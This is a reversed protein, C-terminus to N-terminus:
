DFTCFPHAHVSISAPLRFPHLLWELKWSVAELCSGPLSAIHSVEAERGNALVHSYAAVLNAHLPNGDAQVCMCDGKVHPLVVGALVLDQLSVAAPM